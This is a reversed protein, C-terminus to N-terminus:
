RAYTFTGCLASTKSIADFTFEPMDDGSFFAVQLNRGTAYTAM